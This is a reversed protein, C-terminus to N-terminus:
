SMCMCACSDVRCFDVTRRKTLAVQKPVDALTRLLTWPAFANDVMHSARRM